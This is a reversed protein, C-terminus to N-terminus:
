PYLLFDKLLKSSLAVGTLTLLHALLFIASIRENLEHSCLVFYKNNKTSVGSEVLLPSMGVGCIVRLM